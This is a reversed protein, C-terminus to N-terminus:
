KGLTAFQDYYRLMRAPETGWSNGHFYDCFEERARCVERLRAAEGREALGAITLDFLELAREFAGAFRAPKDQNKLSRSVESGINALQFALPREAWSAALSAHQAKGQGACDGALSARQSKVRGGAVGACNGRAQGGGAGACNGARAGASM